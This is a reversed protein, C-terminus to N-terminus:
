KLDSLRKQAKLGFESEPAAKILTQFQVRAEEWNKQRAHCEALWYQAEIFNPVVAIAKRFHQMAEDVQNLGLSALGMNKEIIPMLVTKPERDVAERYKGLAMAYDGKQYYAWGMNYLAAAPTDYVVNALARQFAAIAMDWQRRNTYIIGLFNHAESYDPKLETAKKFEEIAKDGLDKGHYTIGLYYHIRADDPTYKEAELLEKLAPNYNNAEIYALGLDMHIGAQEHDWPTTLCGTLLFCLLLIALPAARYFSRNRIAM